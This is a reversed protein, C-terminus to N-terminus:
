FLEFFSLDNLVCLKYPPFSKRQGNGMAWQWKQAWQWMKRVEGWCREGIKGVSPSKPGGTVKYINVCPVPPFFFLVNLKLRLVVQTKIQVGDIFSYGQTLYLKKLRLETRQLTPIIIGVKYPPKHPKFSVFYSFSVFFLVFIISLISFMQNSM